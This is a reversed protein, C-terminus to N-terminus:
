LSGLLGLAGVDSAIASREDDSLPILPLRVPGHPLGMLELWTKLHAIPV